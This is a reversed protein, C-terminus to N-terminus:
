EQQLTVEKYVTNVFGEVNEISSDLCVRNGKITTSRFLPSAGSLKSAYLSEGNFDLDAVSFYDNGPPFVAVQLDLLPCPYNPDSTCFNSACSRNMESCNAPTAVMACLYGSSNFNTLKQPYIPSMERCGSEAEKKTCYGSHVVSTNCACGM